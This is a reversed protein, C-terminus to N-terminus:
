STADARVQDIVRHAPLIAEREAAHDAKGDVLDLFVDLQAALPERSSVLAPIEIITQQRYGLGDPTSENLVHRYITVANRLLDIDILRNDEAISLTRIKRQSYRSASVNAVTGDAFGLLAEAVDESGPASDGHLYGFSGRVRSPLVGGAFRLAIDIDHLLLDSSVGTRIRPVYPSHREAVIHRPQELLAAATMIAPNYRELLGCMLPLDSKAALGVLDEVDALDHALPKEMLLPLGRELVERGVPHHAETAAAVVVADVDAVAELAPQWSAGFRGAIPVGVERDPEVVAVLETRDSQSIVRAHLSGMSGAGVLAVRIAAAM